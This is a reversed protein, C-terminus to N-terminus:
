FTFYPGEFSLWSPPYFDDGNFKTDLRSGARPWNRYYITTKNALWAGWWGYTGTTMIVTDCRSLLALDVGASNQTSYTVQFDEHRSRDILSYAVSTLGLTSRVWNISDSLIFFQMRLTENVSSTNRFMQVVHKMAQQFYPTKPVTYGYKFKRSTM